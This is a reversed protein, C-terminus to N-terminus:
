NMLMGYIDDRRGSLASVSYKDEFVKAVIEAVARYRAGNKMVKEEFCHKLNMMFCFPKFAVVKLGNEENLEFHLSKYLNLKLATLNISM